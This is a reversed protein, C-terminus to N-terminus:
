LRHYRHHRIVLDKPFGKRSSDLRHKQHLALCHCRHDCYDQLIELRFGAWHHTWHGKALNQKVHCFFAVRKQLM